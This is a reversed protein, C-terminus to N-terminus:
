TIEIEGGSSTTTTLFDASLTIPGCSTPSVALTANTFTFKNTMTTTSYTVPVNTGTVKCAGLAPVTLTFSISAAGTGTAFGLTTGTKLSALVIKTITIPTGETACGTAATEGNGTSEAATGSTQENKTVKGKIVFNKCSVTGVASDLTLNASTATAASGVPVVASGGFETLPPNAGAVAPIAFALVGVVALLVSLKKAM